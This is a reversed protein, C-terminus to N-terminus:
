KTKKTKKKEEKRTDNLSKVTDMAKKLWNADGTCKDHYRCWEAQYNVQWVSSFPNQIVSSILPPLEKNKLCKNMMNWFSQLNKLKDPDVKVDFELLDQYPLGVYLVRAEINPFKEQLKWKYFMTQKEHSEMPIGERERYKFGYESISKIEVVMLPNEPIMLLENIQRDREYLSDKRHNLSDRGKQFEELQIDKGYLKDVGKWVNKDLSELEKYIKKKEEILSKAKKSCSEPDIILADIRGSVNYKEDFIREQASLFIGLSKLKKVQGREIMEGLEMRRLSQPDIPFTPEVGTMAFYTGRPCKDADTAYLTKKEWAEREEVINQIEKISWTKKKMIRNM